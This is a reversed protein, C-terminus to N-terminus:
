KFTKSGYRIVASSSNLRNKRKWDEFVQNLQAYNSNAKLHSRQEILNGKAEVKESCWLVQYEESIPDYLLLLAALLALEMFYLINHLTFIHFNLLNKSTYIPNALFISVSNGALV